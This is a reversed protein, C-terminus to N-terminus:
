QKPTPRPVPTPRSGPTPRPRPTPTCRGTCPTTTATATATATPTPTPTGGCLGTITMTYNPCGANPTVESVVLVLTQGEDLDVDFAQEPNPSFGSDGIWNTCVDNPDFSGLYAGILVSNTGICATNTDINVCHAAGTTNTFTYEDYHRPLGDGFTACTNSAPCTQPIGSRFLRDTQTPDSTDISGTVVIPTCSPPATPTPTPSGGGACTYTASGAAPPNPDCFEQTFAGSPGQVGSVYSHDGGPQVAGFIVDFRKNPDNEYLRVEFNATASPDAFYVSRWEINFIRNPASGSVSTFIGCNGGPFSSCGSLGIDTRMDQWMPFITYDYPCQNPPAPLCATQYGGFENICVFDLRGNSSVNVGNYTQDYLQFSFPLAVFTDGDDTHNGTDTSGPVIPDSGTTFMYNTCGGPTGTPTPTPTGGGGTDARILWNGPIGFDDILGLFDNNGPHVFDVPGGSSMAAVWSQRHMPPTEDIGQFFHETGNNMPTMDGVFFSTFASVDVPPNLSYNVFTDTGANQITGSVQGLLVADSPNGDGNPDSWIGITIPTGNMSPDPFAPTGWAVSVTSIMTQGAIVAFQNFWLSEFNQSGNGFGVSDEATGDDIVYVSNPLLSRLLRTARAGVPSRGHAASSLHAQGPLRRVDYPRLRSGAKSQLAAKSHVGATPGISVTAISSTLTGKTNGRSRSQALAFPIACVAVLLFV